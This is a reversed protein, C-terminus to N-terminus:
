EEIDEVFVIHNGFPDLLPMEITGWDTKNFGPKYYRYEKETLRRHYAQVDRIHIRIRAGPICDGHHETLHLVVDKRSVQCYLPFNDGFRHEWDVSFGLWDVYFEKAKDVDLIRLVPTITQKFEM